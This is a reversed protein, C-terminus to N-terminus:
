RPYLLCPSPADDRIETDGILGYALVEFQPVEGPAVEVGRDGM